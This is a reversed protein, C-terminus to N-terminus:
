RRQRTTFQLKEAGEAGSALRAPSLSDSSSCGLIAGATFLNRETSLSGLPLPSSSQLCSSHIIARDPEDLNYIDRFLDRTMRASPALWSGCLRVSTAECAFFVCFLNEMRLARSPESNTAVALQAGANSLSAAAPSGKEPEDLV